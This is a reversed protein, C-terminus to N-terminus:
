KEVHDRLSQTATDNRLSIAPGRGNRPHVDSPGDLQPEDNGRPMMPTCIIMFQPRVDSTIPPNCPQLNFATNAISACNLTFGPNSFINPIPMVGPCSPVDWMNNLRLMMMDAGPGGFNITGGIICGPATFPNIDPVEAIATGQTSGLGNFPYDLFSLLGTLTPDLHLLFVENLPPATITTSGTLILSGLLTPPGTQLERVAYAFSPWTPDGVTADALVTAPTGCPVTHFADDVIAVYIFNTATRGAVIVEGTNPGIQSEQISEIFAPMVPPIPNMLIAANGMIIGTVGDFRAIASGFTATAGSNIAALISGGPPQVVSNAVSVISGSGFSYTWCWIVRGGATLRMMLPRNASGTGTTGGVIIDGPFTTIGDGMTAEVLTNGIQSQGNGFARIWKVNGSPDLRMVFLSNPMCCCLNSAASTNTISGTLIFDGNACEQICNAQESAGNIDYANLWIPNGTNDTRVVYIDSNSCVPQAASWTAGASIFGGGSVPQTGRMGIEACPGVGYSNFWSTQARAVNHWLCCLIFVSTIRVLHACMTNSLSQM